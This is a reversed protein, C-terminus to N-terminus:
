DEQEDTAVIIDASYKLTKLGPSRIATLGWAEGMKWAM